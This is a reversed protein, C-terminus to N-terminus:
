ERWFVDTPKQPIKYVYYGFITNPRKTFGESEYLQIASYNDPDVMLTIQKAGHKKSDKIAYRLLARAYGRKQYKKDTEISAIYVNGLRNRRYTILAALKNNNYIAKYTNDKDFVDPYLESMKDKNYDLDVILKKNKFVQTQRRFLLFLRNYFLKPFNFSFLNSKNKYINSLLRNQAYKQLSPLLVPPFVGLILAMYLKKNFM